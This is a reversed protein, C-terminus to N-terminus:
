ITLKYANNQKKFGISQYLNAAIPNNTNVKIINIKLEKAKNIITKLVKKQYGKQRYTELTFVTSLRGKIGSLNEYSPYNEHILLSATSVVKNDILYGYIFLDKNIHKSIYNKIQTKIEKQKIEEKEDFQMIYRINTIQDIYKEDLLQIM